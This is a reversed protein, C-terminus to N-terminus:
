SFLEIIRRTQAAMWLPVRPRVPKWGLVVGDLKLGKGQYSVREGALLGRTVEIWERLAAPPDFAHSRIRHRFRNRGRV